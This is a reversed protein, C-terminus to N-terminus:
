TSFVVPLQQSSSYVNPFVVGHLLLWRTPWKRESSFTTLFSFSVVSEVILYWERQKNPFLFHSTNCVVADAFNSIFSCCPASSLIIDDFSIHFFLKDQEQISAYVYLMVNVIVLWSSSSWEMFVFGWALCPGIFILWVRKYKSTFNIVFIVM